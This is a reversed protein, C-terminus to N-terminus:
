AASARVSIGAFNHQHRDRQKQERVEPQISGDKTRV